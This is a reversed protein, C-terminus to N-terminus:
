FARKEGFPIRQIFDKLDLIISKLEYFFLGYDGNGGQGGGWKKKLIKLHGLPGKKKEWGGKPLSFGGDKKVGNLPPFFFILVLVGLGM